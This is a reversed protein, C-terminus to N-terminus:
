NSARKELQGAGINQSRASLISYYPVLVELALQCAYSPFILAMIWISWGAMGM